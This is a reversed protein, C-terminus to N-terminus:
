ESLPNTGASWQSSNFANLNLMKDANEKWYQVKKDLVVDSAKKPVVAQAKMMALDKESPKPKKGYCNVGFKVYPNAIYGGNVGPRGCNNKTKDNQQLTQWTSKQTPFFIMQGESWGYNCWEGGQQYTAEIQDYNALKAGYASCISKADDYTYLNNSVNFVENPVNNSLDAVNNNSIDTPMDAPLNSWWSSIWNSIDDVIPIRLIYKFFDVILLLTFLIWSINETLSVFIPKADSTMPIGFLFILLYFAFLFLILSFISNPDNLYTKFSSASNNVVSSQDTSSQSFYTFYIFVILFLLILFDFSRSLFLSPNPSNDTKFIGLILYLIFYIALFGILLIINSKNFIKYFMMNLDNNDSDVPNAANGSVDVPKVANVANVKNGSADVTNVPKVANGSADVTKATNGSADVTKAPNGSADTQGKTINETKKNDKDQGSFSDVPKFSFAQGM